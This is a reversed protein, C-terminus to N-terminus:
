HIGGCCDDHGDISYASDHEVDYDDNFDNDVENDDSTLMM